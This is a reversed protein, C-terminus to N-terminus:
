YDRGAARLRRAYRHLLEGFTLLETTLAENCTYFWPTDRERPDDVPAARYQWEAPIDAERMHLEACVAFWVSMASGWPDHQWDEVDKFERVLAARRMAQYRM